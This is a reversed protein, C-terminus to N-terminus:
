IDLNVVYKANTEIWERRPEVDEGMLITFVDDALSADELTIRRAPFPFGCNKMAARVRERAERVAADPLGVIDFAPLGGSIDCEVTVESGQSGELALSRVCSPM